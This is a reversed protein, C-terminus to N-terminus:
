AGCSGTKEGCDGEKKAGETSCSGEPKQTGCVGEEKKEETNQCTGQTENTM